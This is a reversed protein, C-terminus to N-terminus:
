TRKNRREHLQQKIEEPTLQSLTKAGLRIYERWAEFTEPCDKPIITKQTAKHKM